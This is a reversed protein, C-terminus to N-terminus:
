DCGEGVYGMVWEGLWTGGRCVGLEVVLGEWLGGLRM